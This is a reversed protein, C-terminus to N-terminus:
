RLEITLRTCKGDRLARSLPDPLFAGEYVDERQNEDLFTFRVPAARSQGFTDRRDPNHYVIWTRGFLKFGFTDKGFGGEAKKSFLWRALTPKPEFLLQNNEWRFPRAGLGMQFVMSIWEATAGSLRAVFGVGHLRKDPYRSSAIFSSNELISRGYIEPRRFAIIGEKMESFFEEALGSRLVELLFKYHMHLFVSENELWGPTFIKNRGIEYPARILPVNLKYMKLKRDYLESAKTARYIKRAQAADSAVRLAHVPGELFFDLPIQKFRLAKVRQVPTEGPDPDSPHVVTLPEYETVENIYYSISLGGSTWARAIGADLVKVVTKLFSEIEERALATERGTVGLRTRERFREKLLALTDWTRFFDDHRALALAEGIAKLLEAVEEAVAHTQHPALLSPLLDLTYAAWRRLEFAEHVSSGLLGPLGNLADCWGPKDAEMELGIGFPDLSAAKVGILGLIKALLSTRYIPGTGGQTRVKNPDEKRRRLLDAKEPDQIVAGLQRIAGDARQVYKKERPQVVHDNDYYTFDRRDVLLPKLQDPYVSAFNELLDLNYIWHDVWFGEGHSADQIKRAGALQRSLQRFAEERSGSAKLLREFLEGPRLLEGGIEFKEYLIVLPNFGDLQLLDFFTEVNGSLLDPFLLVESRRNQNVDRYNGNGQSFYGPMLEFFNYDREMDGHKRSYCYFFQSAKGDSLIVPQGGRLLNDLYTQRSYADLSPIGSHLAFPGTLRSLVAANEERKLLAYSAEKQIMQRLAAAEEWSDAQGYYSTVEQVEGPRLKLQASSFACAFISETRQSASVVNRGQEFQLPHQFSTDTGFINEPDVVIKLRKGNLFSFAFFGGQIWEVVPRDSPEAKLKIFPLEDATHPIEVFAEMTRSMMKLLAENLGFPVIQPLGDLLDLELSKRSKNEIRVQRILLPASENPATFIAVTVRLGLSPNVEEIEIEHARVRLTQRVGKEPFVCFPELLARRGPLRLFTRFGLLPNAAYAKNAPYFELMAGNKNRIGFSSVCQGRNAYFLWMPKGYEGAIGPLFSAFPRAQNFNEIVFTDGELSYKPQSM